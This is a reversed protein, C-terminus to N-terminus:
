KMLQYIKSEQKIPVLSSISFRDFELNVYNVDKSTKMLVFGAFSDLSSGYHNRNDDCLPPLKIFNDAFRSKHAHGMISFQPFVFNYKYNKKSCHEFSILYNYIKFYSQYYGMPVINNKKKALIKILDIHHKKYKYDHNGGLVFQSIYSDDLYIDLIHEIQKAPTFYKPSYNVMGDGIDGGHFLYSIHNQHCFDKVVSFYDLNEDKSAFHTDSVYVVSEGTLDVMSFNDFYISYLQSKEKVTLNNNVLEKYILLLLEYKYLQYKDLVDIFNYGNLLEQFIKEM